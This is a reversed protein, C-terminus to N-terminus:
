SLKVEEKKGSGNAATAEAKNKEAESLRSSLEQILDTQQGIQVAMRGLLKLLGFAEEPDM